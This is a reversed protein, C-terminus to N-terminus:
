PEATRARESAIATASMPRTTLTRALTAGYRLLPAAAVAGIDRLLVPVGDHALVVTNELDAADSARGLGRVTYQEEAHEIYAGGFNSNNAAVREIVDHVTLGYRRLALPDLQIAYQKSQGGWANVELQGRRCPALAAYRLSWDQFTKADM